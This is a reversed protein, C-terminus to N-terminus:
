NIILKETYSVTESKFEILYMGTNFHSLDLKNIGLTSESLLLQGNLNYINVAGDISTNFYIEHKAPNPYFSFNVQSNEATGVFKNENIVGIADLDFGGSEFATAYPDNIINGQSDYTAYTTNISGVVDIIRVFNISDLNIGTSDIIDELDFPTGFGQRYKGALNHIKTADISGFSGIQVSPDTLSVSPIRVYNIGDTSVEIHALELFDDSFSNEFVAFDPGNGNKIPNPFKLTIWGMDGLSVVDGSTGEAMGLAQTSDGFSALGLGPNSIDLYGRNFETVTSAWNVFISSDKSIATTGTQGAPPAYQAYTTLSSLIGIIIGLKKM